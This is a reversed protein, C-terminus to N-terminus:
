WTKVEDESQIWRVTQLVADTFQSDPRFGLDQLKETSACWRTPVGLKCEGTLTVVDDLGLASHIMRALTEIRLEAGSAINIAGGDFTGNQCVLLFARAVDAIPLYDRADNSNGYVTHDGRIARRTIDWVALRRLGIGFTSFIRASLTPVNHLEHFQRLILEQHLKHFGYPSIPQLSDNEHVPLRVPNGYVAASSTLLFKSPSKMEAVATLLRYLPTVASQFDSEKNKFSAEVSSPSESFIIHSPEFQAVIDRCYQLDAFDGQLNSVSDPLNRGTLVVNIGSETFYKSIATGLFGAAGCIM